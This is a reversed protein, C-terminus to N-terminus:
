RQKSFTKKREHNYGKNGFHGSEKMNTVEIFKNNEKKRLYNKKKISKLKEFLTEKERKLQTLAVLQGALRTWFLRSFFALIFLRRFM